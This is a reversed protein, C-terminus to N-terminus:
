AARQEAAPRQRTLRAQIEDWDGPRWVYAEVGPVARLGELWEHQEPSVRGKEAKLEAFILEGARLLTLDPFGKVVAQRRTRGSRMQVTLNEPPHYVAWQGYRALEMVQAQFIAEPRARQTM